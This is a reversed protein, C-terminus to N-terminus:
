AQENLPLVPRITRLATTFNVYRGIERDRLHDILVWGRGEPRVIYAPEANERVWILVQEAVEYPIPSSSLTDVAADLLGMAEGAELWRMLYDKHRPLIRQRLPIVECISTQHSTTLSRTNLFAKQAM